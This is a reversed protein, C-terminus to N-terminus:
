RRAPRRHRRQPATTRERRLALFRAGRVPTRAALYSAVSRRRLLAPHARRVEVVSEAAEAEAREGHERALEVVADIEREGELLVARVAPRREVLVAREHAAEDLRAGLPQERPDVHLVGDGIQQALRRCPDEGGRM